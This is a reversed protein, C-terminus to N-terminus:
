ILISMLIYFIFQLQDIYLTICAYQCSKFNFNDRDNIKYNANGFM